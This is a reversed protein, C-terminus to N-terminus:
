DCSTRMATMTTTMMTTTVTTPTMKIMMTSKKPLVMGISSEGNVVM